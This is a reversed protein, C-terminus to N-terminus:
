PSTVAQSQSLRQATLEPQHLSQDLSGIKSLPNAGQQYVPIPV